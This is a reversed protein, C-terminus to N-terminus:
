FLEIAPGSNASESIDGSVALHTATQSAMHYKDLHGALMTNFTVDLKGDWSHDDPKTSLIQLHDRMEILTSQVHEM